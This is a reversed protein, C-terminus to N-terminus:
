NNLKDFIKPWFDKSNYLEEYRKKGAVAIKEVLKTNKRLENLLKILDEKSSFEMYHTDPVFLGEFADSQNQILMVGSSLIEWTRAPLVNVEEKWTFNLGILASSLENRYQNYTPRAISKEWNYITGAPHIKNEILFDLVEGRLSYSGSKSSAGSYHIFNTRNMFPIFDFTIVPPATYLYNNKSSAFERILKPTDVIYNDVGLEVLKLIRNQWLRESSSDYWIKVIVAGSSQCYNLLKLSPFKHFDPVHQILVITTKTYFTSIFMLTLSDFIWFITNFRMKIYKYEHHIKLANLFLDEDMSVKVGRGKRSMFIIKKESGFKHNTFFGFSKILFNELLKFSYNRLKLVYSKM